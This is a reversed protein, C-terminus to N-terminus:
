APSIIASIRKTSAIRPDGNLDFLRSSPSFAARRCCNGAPLFVHTQAKGTSAVPNVLLEASYAKDEM